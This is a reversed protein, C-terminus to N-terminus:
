SALVDLQYTVDVSNGPTCGTATWHVLHTGAALPELIMLYGQEASPTMVLEPVTRPTAGLLNDPPMQVTFTPSPSGSPGTFYREPQALRTGDVTVAITAPETCAVAAHVYAETRTDPPDNLYAGYFNNILPVLLAKGAPITCSRTVPTPGLAGALFWVDGVQRQGCSAGTTDVLPNEAAPIGLAWQWWTAAWRGYTQGYPRTTLPAVQVATAGGAIALPAAFAGPAPALLCAAAALAPALLRVDVRM